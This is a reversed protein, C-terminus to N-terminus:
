MQSDMLNVSCSKAASVVCVLLDGTQLKDFLALDGDIIRFGDGSVNRFERHFAQLDQLSVVVLRTFGNVALWRPADGQSHEKRMGGTLQNPAEIM